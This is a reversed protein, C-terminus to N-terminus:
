IQETERKMLNGHANGRYIKMQPLSYLLLITVGVGLLRAAYQQLPSLAGYAFFPMYDIVALLASLMVGPWISGWEAALLFLLTKVAFDTFHALYLTPAFPPALSGNLMSLSISLLPALTSFAACYVAAPWKGWRLLPARLLLAILFGQGVSSLASSLMSLLHERDFLIIDPWLEGAWGLIRCIPAFFAAIVLAPVYALLFSLFFAPPLGLGMQRPGSHLLFKGLLLCITFIAAASLGVRVLSLVLSDWGEWNMMWAHLRSNVTRYIQFFALPYLLAQWLAPRWLAAPTEISSKRENM